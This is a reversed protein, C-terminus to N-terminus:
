LTHREKMCPFILDSRKTGFDLRTSDFSVACVHSWFLGSSHPLTTYPELASEGMEHEGSPTHLTWSGRKAQHRM